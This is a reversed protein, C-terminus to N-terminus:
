RDGNRASNEDPLDLLSDFGEVKDFKGFQRFYLESTMGSYHLVQNEYQYTQFINLWICFLFLTLLLAKAPKAFLMVDRIVMAVPIAFVAYSDILARQGYSGGYWWSWWSFVIFLTIIFYVTVSLFLSEMKKRLMLLGIFVLSMLPTYVLWGKRFSFLGNIFEPDTFYYRESHDPAGFYSGTALKWYKWQPIWVLILVTIFFLVQYLPIKKENLERMNKINYLVFFLIIIINSLSILSIFGFSVSLGIMYKWNRDEHWRITCYSFLAILAFSYVHPYPGSQSSYCFLNTGLGLLLVTASTITDSFDLTLLMKRVYFLGVFLFFLSSLLLFFKYPDSFGTMPYDFWKACLHGVGFFPAYLAAVGYTEGFDKTGNSYHKMWFWYSSDSYKYDSKEVKLDDFIFYAPLYGYYNHVDNEIVREPERWNKFDMDVLLCTLVTLIISFLSINNRM